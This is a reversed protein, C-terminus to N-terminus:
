TSWDNYVLFACVALVVFLALVLNRHRMPVLLVLALLVLYYQINGPIVLMGATLMLAFVMLGRFDDMGTKAFVASLLFAIILLVPAILVVFNYSSASTQGPTQNSLWSMAEALDGEIFVPVMVLLSTIVVSLFYKLTYKFSKSQAYAFGILM